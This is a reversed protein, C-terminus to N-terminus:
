GNICANIFMSGFETVFFVGNNVSISDYENPIKTMKLKDVNYYEQIDDYVKSETLCRGNQLEIIGLSVLNALYASMNQPFDLKLIKTLLVAHREIINYSNNSIHNGCVECFPIDENKKLYAIIKAEDPSIKSIMDVFAPHALHEMDINSANALLTTFLDAIDDNTTYSLKEVIPTGIQPHVECRKSEPIEEVKKAYEDLRKKFNIRFKENLLKIPLLFSASFELVTGLSNGIIKVTPQAADAYIQGLVNPVSKILDVINNEM